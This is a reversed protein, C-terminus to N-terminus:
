SGAAVLATPFQPFTHGLDRSQYADHIDKRRPFNLVRVVVAVFAVNHQRDVRGIFSGIIATPAPGKRETWGYLSQTSCGNRATSDIENLAEQAGDLNSVTVEQTGVKAFACMPLPHLM